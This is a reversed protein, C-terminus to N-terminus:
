LETCTKLVFIESPPARGSISLRSFLNCFPHNYKDSYRTFIHQLSVSIFHPLHWEIQPLAAKVFLILFLLLSIAALIGFSHMGFIIITLAIKSGRKQWFWVPKYYWYVSVAVAMLLEMVSQLPLQECRQLLIWGHGSGVLLWFLRFLTAGYINKISKVM